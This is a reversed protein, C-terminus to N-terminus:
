SENGRDYKDTSQDLGSYFDSRVVKASSSLSVDAFTFWSRGQARSAGAVRKNTRFHRDLHQQYVKQHRPTDLWRAGCQTCHLKLDEYLLSPQALKPRDRVSILQTTCHSSNIEVYKNIDANTLGLKGFQKEFGKFLKSEYDNEKDDQLKRDKGIAEGLSSLVNPELHQLAQSVNDMNVNLLGTRVLSDYLSEGDQASQAAATPAQAADYSAPQGSLLATLGASSLQNLGDLVSAGPLVEVPLQPEPPLLSALQQRIEHVMDSTLGTTSVLADLQLLGTLDYTMASFSIFSVQQMSAIRATISQDHPDRYARGQLTGIMKRIDDAVAAREQASATSPIQQVGGLFHQNELMSRGNGGIGGGRGGRGFLADELNRQVRGGHDPFLETGGPAGTRWTGLLEEMKIKTTPDVVTYASLFVREIWRGFLM